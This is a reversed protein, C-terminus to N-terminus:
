MKLNAMAESLEDRSWFVMKGDLASTTFEAQAGGFATGFLRLGCVMNLHASDIEGTASGASQGTNTQAQWMARNAAVGTKKAADAKNPQVKGALAWTGGRNVFLLPDYSHGAGVLSGDPLFLLQTIPLESLRLAQMCGQQAAAAAVDVFTVTADQSCFALTDGTPNFAVNLVQPLRALPHPILAAPNSM